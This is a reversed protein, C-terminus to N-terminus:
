RRISVTTARGTAGGRIPPTEKAAQIAESLAEAERRDGHTYLANM